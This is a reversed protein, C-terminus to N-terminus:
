FVSHLILVACFNNGYGYVNKFDPTRLLVTMTKRSSKSVWMVKLYIKNSQKTKKKCFLMTNFGDLHKLISSEPIDHLIVGEQQIM